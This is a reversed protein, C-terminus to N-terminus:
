NDPQESVIKIGASTGLRQAGAEVLKVADAYSRIGASAKVGVSGTCNAKMLAVDEVTAIGESFGTCTKVFCAGARCSLRTATVKEEDTLLGTELIVKVCHGDAAKVVGRIDEEVVDLRGDKLAGVNIVMDFEDCGNKMADLVEAAKVATTNAGLPFGIVTCVKVPSGALLEKALAVHCPNVCVSAFQYEKAEACLRRIDEQTAFPKLITHDIYRNLKTTM